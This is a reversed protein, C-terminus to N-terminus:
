VVLPWDSNQIGCLLHSSTLDDLHALPTVVIFVFCGPLMFFFESYIVWLQKGASEFRSPSFGKLPPLNIVDVKQM